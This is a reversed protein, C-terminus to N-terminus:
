FNAVARSPNLSVFGTWEQLEGNCRTAKSGGGYFPPLHETTMRTPAAEQRCCSFDTKGYTVLM